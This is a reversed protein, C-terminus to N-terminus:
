AHCAQDDRRLRHGVILNNESCNKVSAAVIFISRPNEPNLRNESIKM